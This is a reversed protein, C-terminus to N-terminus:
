KFDEINFTQSCFATEQHVHNSCVLVIRKNLFRDALDAYWAYGKADLNSLPEDLLLISTDALFAMTLKLRQKMGSSLGSVPTDVAHELGSIVIMDEVSMGEQLPKMKCFFRVNELLTFPEILDIYPAAYTLHRTIDAAPINNNGAKWTITGEYPSLYGSIIRLLTSKGSGNSGNIAFRDGAGISLNVNRFIWRKSFKKGIGSLNIGTVFPDDHLTM